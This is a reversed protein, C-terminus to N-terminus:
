LTTIAMVHFEYGAFVATEGREKGSPVFRGWRCPAIILPQQRLSPKTYRRRPITVLGM